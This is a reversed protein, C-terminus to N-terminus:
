NYINTYIHIDLRSGECIVKMRPISHNRLIVCGYSKLGQVLQKALDEKVGHMDASRGHQTWHSFDVIPVPCEEGAMTCAQGGTNFAATICTLHYCKMYINSPQYSCLAASDSDPRGGVGSGVVVMM